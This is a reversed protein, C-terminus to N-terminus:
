FIYFKKINSLSMEQSLHKDLYSKIFLKDNEEWVFNEENEKQMLLASM